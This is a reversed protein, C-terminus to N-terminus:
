LLSLWITTFLPETPAAAAASLRRATATASGFPAGVAPPSRPRGLQGRVSLQAVGRLVSRRQPRLLVPRRQPRLLFPPVTPCSFHSSLLPPKPLISNFLPPNDLSLSFRFVFSLM